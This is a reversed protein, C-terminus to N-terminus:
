GASPGLVGSPVAWELVDLYSRVNDVFRAAEWGRAYGHKTKEYWAAESLRPLFDRVDLWSDPDRGASQALVRADEVHAYGINYAALALWTRDPEPVRDPITERMQALFAAGGHISEAANKRDAVGLAGATDETLMMLGRVRTASVASSNWRSEQYGVAALIRWDQHFERAAHEFIPRLAPLRDQLDRVLVRAGAYDYREDPDYFRAVVDPELRELEGFYSAVRKAIDPDDKPLAWALEDATPFNFAIRLEPHYPRTLYFENRDAVTVDLEGSWVRDLLDLTSIGPIEEIHLGPVTRALRKLAFAHASGAVVAVKRGALDQIGKPRAVGRRHVLHLKVRQYPRSFQVVRQWEPTVALGAAGIHARGHAVAAIAAAPSPYAMIQLPLGLSQAFRKALAYEPGEPGHAGLYYATPSNYTAVRLAGVTRAQEVVGPRATCTGLLAFVALAAPVRWPLGGEPLRFLGFMRLPYAVQMPEPAIAISFRGLLSSYRRLYVFRPRSSQRVQRGLPATDRGIQHIIRAGIAVDPVPPSTASHDFTGSEFDPTPKRGGHTRIGGEGGIERGLTFPDAGELRLTLRM